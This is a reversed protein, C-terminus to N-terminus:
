QWAAQHSKTYRMILYRNMQWTINKEDECPLAARHKEQPKWGDDIKLDSHILKQESNKNMKVGSLVWRRLPFQLQPDQKTRATRESIAMLWTICQTLSLGKEISNMVQWLFSFSFFCISCLYQFNAPYMVSQRPLATISSLPRQKM